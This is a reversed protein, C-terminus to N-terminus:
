ENKCSKTFLLKHNHSTSMAHWMAIFNILIQLVHSMLKVDHNMNNIQHILKM